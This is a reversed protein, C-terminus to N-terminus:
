MHAHLQTNTTHISGTFQPVMLSVSVGILVFNPWSMRQKILASSIFSSSNGVGEGGGRYRAYVDRTDKNGTDIEYGATYM